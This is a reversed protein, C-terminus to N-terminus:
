NRVNARQLRQQALHRRGGSVLFVNSQRVSPMDGPTSKSM